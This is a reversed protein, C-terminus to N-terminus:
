FSEASRDDHKSRAQELKEFAKLKKTPAPAVLSSAERGCMLGSICRASSDFSTRMPRASSVAAAPYREAYTLNAYTNRLEEDHQKLTAETKQAKINAHLRSLSICWSREEAGSANSQAQQSEASSHHAHLSRWHSVIARRHSVSAHQQRHIRRGSDAASAATTSAANPDDYPRMARLGSTVTTLTAGKMSDFVDSTASAQLSPPLLLTRLPRRPLELPM